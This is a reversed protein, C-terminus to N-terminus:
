LISSETVMVVFRETANETRFGVKEFVHHAIQNQPKVRLRIKRLHLQKLGIELLLKMSETGYGKNQEKKDGIFISAEALSKVWDIHRLGITGILKTAKRTEIGLVLDNPSANFLRLQKARAATTPVKQTRALNRVSLDKLWKVYSAADADNM